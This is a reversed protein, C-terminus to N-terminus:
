YQELFCVTVDNAAARIGNIAVSTYFTMSEGAKLLFGNTASVTGAGIWISDTSHTNRVLVSHRGVRAAVLAGSAVGAVAQGNAIAAAGVTKVDLAGNGAMDSIKAALSDIGIQVQLPADSGDVEKATALTALTNGIQARYKSRPSRAM